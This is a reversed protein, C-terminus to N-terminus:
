TYNLKKLAPECINQLEKKKEEPLTPWTDPKPRFIPAAKEVWMDDTKEDWGNNIFTILQKLNDKPNKVLKEYCLHHVQHSPLKALTEETHLVASALEAGFTQFPIEFKNLKEISFQDPHLWSLDGFDEPRTNNDSPKLGTEEYAQKFAMGLKFGQFRNFAMINERVDRYLFVFKADPFMKLLQDVFLISLGSREIWVEKQFKNLLWSFLRNYQNSLHDKPFHKVVTEMEEFLSDPDNTIHPLPMSIIGPIGTKENFKSTETINYLFEKFSVGKKMYFPILSPAKESLFAWFKEGDWVEDSLGIWKDEQSAQFHISMFFESLSLLHPHMNICNSLATSGSRGASIIFTKESMSEM